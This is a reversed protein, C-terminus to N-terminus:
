PGFIDFASVGTEVRSSSSCRRACEDLSLHMIESGMPHIDRSRGTFLKPKLYEVITTAARRSERGLQKRSSSQRSRVSTTLLKDIQRVGNAAFTRCFDSFKFNVRDDIETQREPRPRRQETTTNAIQNMRLQEELEICVYGHALEPWMPLNSQSSIVETPSNDKGRSSNSNSCLLVRFTISSLSTSRLFVSYSLFIIYVHVLVESIQHVLGIM